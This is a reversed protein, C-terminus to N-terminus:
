APTRTLAALAEDISRQAKAISTELADAHDSLERAGLLLDKTVLLFGAARGALRTRAMQRGKATRARTRPASM